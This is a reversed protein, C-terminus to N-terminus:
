GFSEAILTTLGPAGRIVPLRLGGNALLLLSNSATHFAEFALSFQVDGKNFANGIHRDGM